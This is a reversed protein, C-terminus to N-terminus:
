SVAERGTLVQLCMWVKTCVRFNGLHLHSDCMVDDPFQIIFPVLNHHPVRYRLQNLCQTVLLFTAPEIGSPLM